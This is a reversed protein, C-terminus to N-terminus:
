NAIHPLPVLALITSGLVSPNTRSDYGERRTNKDTHKVLFQLLIQLRNIDKMKSARLRRLALKLNGNELLKKSKWFNQWATKKFTSVM